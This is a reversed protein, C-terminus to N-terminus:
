NVPQARKSDALRQREQESLFAIKLANEQATRIQERNLGAAPAAVQYEHRLTIGSIAPDDSNITALLGFELFEKLPHDSYDRVTTTQVNSTLNSEIGIQHERMFEMLTRDKRAAIAHGIRSAGLERIAQWISEPGASEGAHVTIKWGLDRAREFHATFLSGPFNVEDGGLDLAAVAERCSELAALEKWAIDPGYTRSLIGILKVPLHYDRSATRVGDIVAEVVGQPDLRHPEAMFWPSFRLEAYDIGEAHLDEVNEYAVRRCADYDKLIATLWYFKSIFAMVGPVQDGIQVHPRLGAIDDAPLPLNFKRGLELITELRVSGDLHRHLDILPLTPDIHDNVSTERHTESM